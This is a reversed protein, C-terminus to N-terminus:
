QAIQWAEAPTARGSLALYLAVALADQLPVQHAGSPGRANELGQIFPAMRPDSRYKEALPRTVPIGGLTLLQEQANDQCIMRAFEVCSNMHDSDKFIALGEGLLHGVSEEQRPLPCVQFQRHPSDQALSHARWTDTIVMAARGEAFLEEVDWQSWSLVEPQSHGALDGSLRLAAVAPATDLNLAGTQDYLSGGLAWLLDMFLESSAGPLGLGYVTPPDALAAALEKVEEWTTPPPLDAEALLDSRVLLGRSAISWPVARQWQEDKFMDLAPAYFSQRCDAPLLNDVPRFAPGLEDLWHAPVITMDPANEAEAETWAKLQQYAAAVPKVTLHIFVQPHRQQYLWIVNRVPRLAQYDRPDDHWLVFQIHERVAPTQPFGAGTATM